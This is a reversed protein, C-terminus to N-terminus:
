DPQLLGQVEEVRASRSCHALVCTIGNYPSFGLLFIMMMFAMRQYKVVVEVTAPRTLEIDGARKARKPQGTHTAAASLPPLPSSSLKPTQWGTSKRSHTGSKQQPPLHTDNQEQPDAAKTSRRSPKRPENGTSVDRLSSSKRRLKPPVEKQATATDHEGNPPTAATDLLSASSSKRLLRSEPPQSRRRDPQSGPEEATPVHAATSHRGNPRKSMAPKIGLASAM